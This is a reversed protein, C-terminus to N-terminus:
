TKIALRSQEQSSQYIEQKRIPKWQAVANRRENYFEHKADRAAGLKAHGNIPKAKGDKWWLWAVMAERFCIPVYYDQGEQPSVLCELMIYDRNFRRDLIIVGNAKDEKFSGVFPEGSSVGYVNSYGNGNWYNCWTSNNWELWSSEPDDVLSFRDPSLDAFTTLKDNYYMPIIEGRNNLIGVKTWNIYGIPLTVTMNANVPLKFTQIKYFFDLGLNEMGRFGLHFCKFYKHQSGESENLYDTIISDLTIYGAQPM